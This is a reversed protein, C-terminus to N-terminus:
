SAVRDRGAHKAAYLKEDARLILTKPDADVDALAACGVSVTVGIRADRFHTVLAAVSERV